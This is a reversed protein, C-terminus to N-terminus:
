SNRCRYIFKHRIWYSRGHSRTNLFILSLLTFTHCHSLKSDRRRRRRVEWSRMSFRCSRNVSRRRSNRCRSSNIANIGIIKSFLTLFCPHAYYYTIRPLGCRYLTKRKHAATARRSSGGRDDQSGLTVSM